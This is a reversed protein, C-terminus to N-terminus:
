KNIKRIGVSAHCQNCFNEPEAHCGLCDSLKDDGKIIANDHTTRWADKDKHSDPPPINPDVVLNLAEKITKKDTFVHKTGVYDHCKNCFKDPENHCPLCGEAKIKGSAIMNMHNGRFKGIPTHYWPMLDVGTPKAMVLEGSGEFTPKEVSCGILSIICLLLLMLNLTPRRTNKM